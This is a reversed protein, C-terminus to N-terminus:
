RNFIDEKLIFPISGFKGTLYGKRLDLDKRPSFDSLSYLDSSMTEPNRETFYIQDRRFIKKDLLNVNHSTFVVQSPRRMNEHHLISILFSELFPHLSEDLEDILLTKGSRIADAWPGILSFFRRTGNSEDVLDFEVEGHKTKIEISESKSKLVFDKLERPMNQPLDKESLERIKITIDDIGLDAIRLSSVVVEKFSPDDDLMKATFNELEPNSTSTIIKLDEKFWLFPQITKEFNMNASRSLYLMNEPTQKSIIKQERKNQTFNYKNTNVRNFLLAKKGKPYYFLYEDIIKDKILSIGYLYKIDKKMFFIEFKSPKLSYESDLLFPEFFIKDGPQFEHSNLILHKLYSIGKLINTKGSANPGFIIISRLLKNKKSNDLQIVNNPLSTDSSAVFSLTKEDKFSRFNGLTFDILM